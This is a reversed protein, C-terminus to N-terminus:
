RKRRRRNKRKRKRIASMVTIILTLVILAILVIVVSCFLNDEPNRNEDPAETLEPTLVETKQDSRPTEMINEEKVGSGVYYDQNFYYDQRTNGDASTEVTELSEVTSGAPIVVSGGPVEIKQFKEFGYNFLQITDQCVEGASARMVVAILTIGNREAGTVLTNGSAQTSGTKGGICGEYYEPAEPALLAHHTTITRSEATMNTPEITYSTTGIIKRFEQNQIAEQFILAMDHATTYHNEDPMGSANVFHTNACGLEQAKQNMMEVFAEVSGGVHEAIQTAVDNASKIMLIMLCQEMNLVEGVQMDMNSSDPAQDALCTETFTVSEDMASHELAVLATMIKTISAPYRLEDMGKNYLITGTEAEILVATESYLDPGQPWQAIENTTISYSAGNNIQAAMVTSNNLLFLCIVAILIHYGKKM